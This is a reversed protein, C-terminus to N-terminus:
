KYETGNIIEELKVKVFILASQAGAAFQTSKQEYINIKHDILNMLDLLDNKIISDEDITYKDVMDDIMQPDELYAEEEDDWVYPGWEVLSDGYYPWNDVGGAELANYKIAKKCLMHLDEEMVTRVPM